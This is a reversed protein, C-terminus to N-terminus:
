LCLLAYTLTWIFMAKMGNALGGKDWSNLCLASLCLFARCKRFFKGLGPDMAREKWISSRMFLLASSAIKSYPILVRIWSPQLKLKRTKLVLLINQHKPSATVSMSRYLKDGWIWSSVTQNRLLHTTLTLHSWSMAISAPSLLSVLVWCVECGSEYVCVWRGQADLWSVVVDGRGVAQSHAWPDPLSVCQPQQAKHNVDVCVVHGSYIIIIRYHFLFFGV